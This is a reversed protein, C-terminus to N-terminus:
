VQSNLPVTSRSTPLCAARPCNARGHRGSCFPPKDPARGGSAARLAGHQLESFLACAGPRSPTCLVPQREGAFLQGPTAGRLVCLLVPPAMLLVNMKVGTAASFALISPVFRKGMLLLLGLHALLMAWCDNFLRLGLRVARPDPLALSPPASARVGQRLVYISHLRRSLALVPLLAPPLAESRIYIALITALSALYLVAFIVQAM